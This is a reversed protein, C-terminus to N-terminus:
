KSYYDSVKSAMEEVINTSFLGMDWTARKGMFGWSFKTFRWNNFMADVKEPVHPDIADSIIKKEKATWNGEFGYPNYANGNNDAARLTLGLIDM